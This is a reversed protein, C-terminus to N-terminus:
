VPVSLGAYFGVADRSPNRAEGNLRANSIHHWHIGLMLRTDSDDIRISTGFGARPMFGFSTGDDPVNDSAIFLGIGGEFFVSYNPQQYFHYRVVLSSSAGWTDDDQFIWWGALEAGIEIDDVVFWTQQTFLSVDTNAEFDQAARIGATFRATGAIGFTPHRPSQQTPEIQLDPQLEPAPADAEPQWIPRPADLLSRRLDGEAAAPGTLIIAIAALARM